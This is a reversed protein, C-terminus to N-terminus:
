LNPKLMTEGEKKRLNSHVWDQGRAAQLLAHQARPLQVQLVVVLDGGGEAPDLCPRV